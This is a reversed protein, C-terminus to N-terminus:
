PANRAFRGRPSFTGAACGIPPRFAAACPPRCGHRFAPGKRLRALRTAAQQAFCVYDVNGIATLHATIAAAERPGVSGAVGDDGPLKLGIIFGSGCAARIAAVLEAVIRARGALDGGYRDVRRNARPSLFQNFLHGHGASIEVGSFGCRQIRALANSM